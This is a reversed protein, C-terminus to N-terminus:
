MILIGYFNLEDLRFCEGYDSLPPLSWITFDEVLEGYLQRIPLYPDTYEYNNFSASNPKLNIYAFCFPFCTAMWKQLKQAIFSPLILSAYKSIYWFGFSKWAPYKRLDEELCQFYM